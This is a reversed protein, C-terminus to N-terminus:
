NFFSSGTGASVLSTLVGGFDRAVARTLVSFTATRLLARFLALFGTRYLQNLPVFAQLLVEVPSHKIGGAWMTGSGRLNKPLSYIVM